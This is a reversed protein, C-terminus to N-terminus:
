FWSKFGGSWARNRNWDRDTYNWQPSYGLRPQENDRHTGQLRRRFPPRAVPKAPKDNTQAQALATSPPEPLEPLDALEPVDSKRPLPVLRTAQPPSYAALGPNEYVAPQFLIYFSLAFIGVIGLITSAALFPPTWEYTQVKICRKM